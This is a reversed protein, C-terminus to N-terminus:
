QLFFHKEMKVTVYASFFIKILDPLFYPAVCILLASGVTMYRHAEQCYYVFWVTGFFYCVLLGLFYGFMLWRMRAKGDRHKSLDSFAGAFLASFLFGVIYGGSPTMFVGPGGSFGTFAPLGFFGLLVYSFVCLFGKRLGLVGCALFISFTQLSVSIGGPMKFSLWASIFLIAVFLGIHCINKTVNKKQM